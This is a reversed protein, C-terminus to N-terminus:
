MLDKYEFLATSHGMDQDERAMKYFDPVQDASGLQWVRFNEGVMMRLPQSFDQTHVPGTLLPKEKNGVTVRLIVAPKFEGRSLVAAASLHNVIADLANLLFDAREFYVVPKLGTLALGIALGAMLNEAVPTEVIQADPVSSLTGMARGRHLGYGVFRTAPDCALANM